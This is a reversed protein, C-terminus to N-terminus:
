SYHLLILEMTWEMIVNGGYKKGPVHKGGASDCAQGWGLRIQGQGEFYRNQTEGQTEWRGNDSCFDPHTSHQFQCFHWSDFLIDPGAQSQM